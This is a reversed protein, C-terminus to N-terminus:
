RDLENLLFTIGTTFVATAAEASLHGSVSKRMAEIMEPSPSRMAELAARTMAREKSVHGKPRWQADAEIIAAAVRTTMM